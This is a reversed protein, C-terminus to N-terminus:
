PCCRRSESATRGPGPAPSDPKPPCWSLLVPLLLLSAILCNALGLVLLLGLRANPPVESLMLVGFGLSISLTNLLAPPGTLALARRIAEEPLAGAARALRFSELLHIACNVGIGLTMAAFMSTAVGLPIGLWGMVAFKVLVALVSPLLCLFGWRASGGFLATVLFVGALSVALSELQTRVVGQILSQSVAVDGAFGIKIGEPALKEREFARIDRMLAATDVFNADKLFVTTLSQWYNTDVLQRLRRPGLALGYYDWLLKIETPDDVWKRANPDNPRVMFRTTLLYDPPGLVGGVARGSQQRIFDGLERLRLLTELRVHSRVVIDFHLRGARALADTFGPPATRAALTTVIQDGRHAAMEVHTQWTLNSASGAVSLVVNGGEISAASEVLQAPIWLLASRLAAPDLEGSLTAPSDFSVYLLHMGYFNENVFAANRRFEGAPDFSDMWSDQVALRRVGFPTLAAVAVVVVVAWRWRGVGGALRAFAEPLAPPTRPAGRPVFWAPDLLVLVAPVATLSYFLGFLVGIGTAVGFARVPALPSLAFSLFGVASALSTAAVPGALKEFTEAVLTAHPVAARERLLAFYRNFLYIDNTVGIATLLVPMVAITLYVPVGFWGMGGFVFALTAAVGPLPVLAAPLNRFALWLVLFMVLAAVPVLGIRRAIHRRLERLVGPTDGGTGAGGSNSAGLWKKPVGLDELIRTGLLSEAVPAGTVFIGNEGDRHSQVIQSVRDYLAPRDAGAPVGLLLVTARGDFSVLTGTYLEIRRLDERLQALDAATTLPPELLKQNILTGPRLRFSPETALSVLNTSDLSPVKAFAATLDRVIQITGPNFIGDPGLSRVVVVMQDEIGFKGRVARDFGVEPANAPVLAQADTRLKLRSLGPAAAFTVILAFLLAQRPSRIAFKSLAGSFGAAIENWKEPIGLRGMSCILVM